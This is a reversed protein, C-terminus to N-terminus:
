GGNKRRSSMRRRASAVREDDMSRRWSCDPAFECSRCKFAEEIDVGTAKRDGRWWAMYNALYVDLAQNSVPFDHVDLQRGDDRHIYQVRLMHGLSAAGQPFTINIERRVLPLLERLTKYKVLDDPALFEPGLSDAAEGPEALLIGDAEASSYPADYFVEHHLDGIQALFGDSFQADPALGCRRFLKFFDVKDAALNSLFRHYLLLQIKAPRLMTNSVPALSGRTKVDTLYVKPGPPRSSSPKQPPFYDALVSQKMQTSSEQRSLEEKLEPNPHDYSLGDIIGNVWNDDVIGWIEFERTLGTERLTRLGQILNWLRLAFADEKSLVDIAVSTHVEDELKQHMRTGGRMAATVTRRGGPLRTLTYWYQLECWAGSTLDSVSLLKSPFSRFRQLPSQRDDVDHDGTEPASAEAEVSSLARSLDPYCVDAGVDVSKPPVSPSRASPEASVTRGSTSKAGDLDSHTSTVHGNSRDGRRPQAPLAAVRTQVSASSREFSSSVPLSATAESVIRILDLEDEPSFDYGYDSDSDQATMDPM